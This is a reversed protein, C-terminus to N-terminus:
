IGWSKKEKQEQWVKQKPKNIKFYMYFKKKERLMLERFKLKKKTKLSISHKSTKAPSALM